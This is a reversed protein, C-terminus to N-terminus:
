RPLLSGDPRLRTLVETVAAAARRAQQQEFVLPPALVITNGYDRVVVRHARRVETAAAGALLPERTERDTVLEVGVTAGEVRIDGVVPLEAAGALEARFWDGITAARDILGEGELVALNALGVACAVPHGFYTYGHFFGDGSTVADAIADNLLVAGLPLYGSTVGKATVILDPAMGRRPSDFWFGTRGYATVVEDAILLIGHESLLQRVRPWYDAPPTIVGGGAMVPEGIMAAIRGPGIRDITRALEDILFDTPPRGDYWEAHYPHPPTLKAVHPLNPGVAHQMGDFGTATGSGYTAGHYGFRRALIWTRDPEGGRHHYLRAAKIATDVGESGGCTFFVRNIGEPALDALRTALEISKDNSFVDFSTFYELRTMQEAAAEALERRGHGVQCLWNAGGTADLLETGHADWVVCGAGRVIVSREDRADRQHPHILHRRDRAELEPAAVSDPPATPSITM